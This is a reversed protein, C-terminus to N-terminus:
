VLYALVEDASAVIITGWEADHREWVGHEAVMQVGFRCGIAPLFRRWAPSPVRDSLKAEVVLWPRRDRTLVFDLERKEKDRLFGLDFDGEGLDTWYHCAKLLHLAVLNEFRAAPSEVESHDWMYLKGEKRLSRRMSGRHPKLEFVYYLEKLYSLWRTVTDHSVELDERLAAVSLLSGVREPLLSALMEIRSLEPLRSLDRLDERVVKEVRGRRWVRAFKDDQALFPEPYAGYRLLAALTSAYSTKRRQSRAHLADILEDAAGASRHELERLTFPHLRFNLYRGLLSDGGKKYVNLRASGTVLIDAPTELTDYIGKLVRKWGRAKHIEDLVLLPAPTSAAPVISGPEKLWARRFTVDDWNRYRGSKRQGLLRKALTTKGCQRPGSVFAMKRHDFALRQLDPELYRRKLGVL